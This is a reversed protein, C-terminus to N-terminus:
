WTYIVFVCLFSNESIPLHRKVFYFFQATVYDSEKVMIKYVLTLKMVPFMVIFM